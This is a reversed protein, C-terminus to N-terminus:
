PHLLAREGEFSLVAGERTIEEIRYRGDVSDGRVYRKGNIIVMREGEAQTFVLVNLTMKAMAEHLTPPKVSSPPAPPPATALPPPVAPVPLTPPPGAPSAAMPEPKIPRPFVPVEPTRTAPPRQEEPAPPIVTRPQAAEKRPAPPPPAFSPPISAESERPFRELGGPLDAKPPRPVDTPPTPAPVALSPAPEKTRDAAPPGGPRAPSELAPRVITPPPAATPRLWVLWFAAAVCALVGGGIAWLGYSRGVEWVPSHVTTLTPVKARGREREAKKLADLIYSM